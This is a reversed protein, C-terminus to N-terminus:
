NMVTLMINLHLPINLSYIFVIITDTHLLAKMSSITMQNWSQVTSEMYWGNHCNIFLFKCNINNDISLIVQCMAIRSAKNEDTLIQLRWINPVKWTKLDDHYHLSGVSISVNTAWNWPELEIKWLWKNWKRLWTTYSALAPKNEYLIGLKRQITASM